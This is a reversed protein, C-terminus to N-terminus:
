ELKKQRRRDLEKKLFSLDPKVVVRRNETVAAATLLTVVDISRGMFGKQQSRELWHTQERGQFYPDTSFLGCERFATKRILAGRLPHGAQGRVWAAGAALESANVLANLAGLPFRDGPDIFILLEAFSERIGRNWAQANVVSDRFPLFRVTGALNAIEDTMLAAPGSAMVILETRPYRQAEIDSALTRLEIRDEHQFHVIISIFPRREHPRGEQPWRKHPRREPIQGVPLDAAIASDLTKQIITAIGTRDTGLNLAAQPIEQSM